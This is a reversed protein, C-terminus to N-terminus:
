VPREDRLAAGIAFLCQVTEPQTITESFPIQNLISFTKVELGLTDRLYSQIVDNNLLTPAMVILNPSAQRFLTSSYDLSRQIELALQELVPPKDKINQTLVELPLDFSRSLYLGEEVFLMLTGGTNKLYLLSKSYGSYPYLNGINRLALEPIDLYKLKIGSDKLFNEIPPILGRRVAVGYGIKVNDKARPLPIEILDVVADELPFNISDRMLWRVSQKLEAHPVNPIEVLSLQYHNPQLIYCCSVNELQNDIVFKTLAAQQQIHDPTPEFTHALIEMKKENEYYGYALSMGDTGRYIGLLGKKDDPKEKEGLNKFLWDM